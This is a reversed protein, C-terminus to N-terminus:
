PKQFKDMLYLKGASFEEKWATLREDDDPRFYVTEGAHRETMVIHRLALLDLLYPSHTTLVFQTEPILSRMEEVLLNLTRPDLGNELEEIFVVPPVTAQNLLTLIALVRLTGSSFMWSPLRREHHGETLFLYILKQVQIEERGFDALDPLVYRMKDLISEFAVLDDQTRSFLDALNEGSSQLSVQRQSYDRRSPMYMREPELSLFQWSRIYAALDLAFPDNCLSADGLVMRTADFTEPQDDPKIYLEARGLDPDDLESEFVIQVGDDTKKKLVEHTILYFDNSPKGNFSIKYFYPSNQYKGKVEFEIDHAMQYSEEEGDAPHVTAYGQANRVNEMGLWRTNFAASVGHILAIQLTQLAEIVSSKGSGNNGVFTTIDSFTVRADTIAKFNRISVETIM